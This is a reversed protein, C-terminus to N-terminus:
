FIDFRKRFEAPDDLDFRDRLDDMLYDVLWGLMRHNEGAQGERYMRAVGRFKDLAGAGRVQMARDASRADGVAAFIQDRLPVWSDLRMAERMRPQVPKRAPPPPLKPEDRRRDDQRDDRDARGHGKKKRRGRRDDDDDNSDDDEDRRHSTAAGPPPVAVRGTPARTGTTAAGPAGGLLGALPDAIVGPTPAPGALPMVPAPPAAPVVAVPAIPPAPSPAALVPSPAPAAAAPAVTPAAAAAVLSAAGSALINKANGASLGDAYFKPRDAFDCARDLTDINLQGEESSTPRPNNKITDFAEQSATKDADAGFLAKFAEIRTM